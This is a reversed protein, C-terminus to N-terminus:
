NAFAVRSEGARARGGKRGVVFGCIVSARRAATWGGDTM